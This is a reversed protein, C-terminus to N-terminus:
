ILIELSRKPNVYSALHFIIDPKVANVAEKTKHYDILDVNHFYLRDDDIILRNTDSQDIIDLIHVESIDEAFNLANVLHAGVFGNGGTILIKKDKLSFM